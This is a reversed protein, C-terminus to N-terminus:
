GTEEADDILNAVQDALGQDVEPRVHSYNDAAIMISSHGLRDSVVKM